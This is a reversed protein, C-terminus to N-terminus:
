EEVAGTLCSCIVQARSTPVSGDVTLGACGNRPAIAARDLVYAFTRLDHFNEREHNSDENAGSQKVGACVGL